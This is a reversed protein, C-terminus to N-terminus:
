LLEKYDMRGRAQGRKRIWDKEDAPVELIDEQERLVMTIAEAPCTSVCLGCGICRKNIEATDNM